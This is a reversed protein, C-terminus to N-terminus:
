YDLRAVIYWSGVSDEVLVPALGFGVRSLSPSLMVAAHSESHEWGVVVEMAAEYSSVPVDWFALIEGYENLEPQPIHKWTGCYPPSVEFHCKGDGGKMSQGEAQQRYAYSQANTDAYQVMTLPPLGYEARKNNMAQLLFKKESTYEPPTYTVNEPEINMPAPENTSTEVPAPVSTASGNDEQIKTESPEEIREANKIDDVQIDDGSDHIEVRQSEDDVNVGLPVAPTNKISTTPEDPVSVSTEPSAHASDENDLAIFVGSGLVCGAVLSGATCKLIRNMKDRNTM